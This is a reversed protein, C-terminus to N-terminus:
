CNLKAQKWSVRLKCPFVLKFASIVKEKIQKKFFLIIILSCFIRAKNGKGVPFILTIQAIKATIPSIACNRHTKSMQVFFIHNEFLHFHVLLPWLCPHITWHQIIACIHNYFIACIHNYFIACYSLSVIGKPYFFIEAPWTL